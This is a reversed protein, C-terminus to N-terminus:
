RPSAPNPRGATVPQALIEQINREVESKRIVGKVFAVVRGDRSIYYTTPLEETAEYESGAHGDDLLVPYDMGIRTAFAAVQERAGDDMSVGLIQLGKPGYEKQLDIFWPIERRCPACWTAWFNLVVAKGRFDSLQVRNGDLDRLAFDPALYARSPHHTTARGIFWFLVVLLILLSARVASGLKTTNGQKSRSM